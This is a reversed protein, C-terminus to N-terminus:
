WDEDEVVWDKVWFLIIEERLWGFFSVSLVLKWFCFVTRAPLLAFTWQKLKLYFQTRQIVFTKKKGWAIATENFSSTFFLSMKQSRYIFFSDTKDFTPNHALWKWRCFDRAKPFNNYWLCASPSFSFVSLIFITLNIKKSM